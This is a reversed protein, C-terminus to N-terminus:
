KPGLEELKSDIQEWNLVEHVIPWIRVTSRCHRLDRLVQGLFMGVVLGIFPGSAFSGSRALWIWFLMLPLILVAVILWSKAHMGLLDLLPMDRGQYKKYIALVSRYFRTDKDMHSMLSNAQYPNEM